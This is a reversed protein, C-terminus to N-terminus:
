NLFRFAKLSLIDITSTRANAVALKREGREQTAVVAQVMVNKMLQHPKSFRGNKQGKLIYLSTDKSKGVFVDLYGDQNLDMIRYFDDVSAGFVYPNLQAAYSVSSLYFYIRGKHVFMFDMKEDKDLDAVGVMRGPFVKSGMEENKMLTEKKLLIKEGSSMELRFAELRAGDGVSKEMVLMTKPEHAYAYFRQVQALNVESELMLEKIAYTQADIGFHQLRPLISQSGKDFLTLVFQSKSNKPWWLVASQLDTSFVPFENFKGFRFQSSCSQVSLKNELLSLLANDAPRWANRLRAGLRQTFVRASQANLELKSAYGSAQSVVFFDERRSNQSVMIESPIPPCVIKKLQALNRKQRYTIPSKLDADTTFFVIKKLNTSCFLVEKVGDQNFDAVLFDSITTACGLVTRESFQRKNLGWFVSITQEENDAYLIDRLGDGNIDAVALQGPNKSTKLTTPAVGTEIGLDYVVQIQSNKGNKLSADLSLIVDPIANQNLDNAALGRIPANFAYDVPENFLDSKSDRMLFLKNEVADTCLLYNENAEESHLHGHTIEKYTNKEFTVSASKLAGKEGVLFTEVGPGNGIAFIKRSNQHFEVELKRANNATKLLAAPVLKKNRRSIFCRLMSPEGYLVLLDDKGDHNVDAAKLDYTPSKLRFRRPVFPNNKRGYFIVLRAGKKEVGAFDLIGDGNFDGTVVKEIPNPIPISKRYFVPSKIANKGATDTAYIETIAVVPALVAVFLVKTIFVRIIRM